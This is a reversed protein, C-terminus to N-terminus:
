RPNDINSEKEGLKAKLERIEKKLEIMKLERGIAMKQFKELDRIKEKFEQEFKKRETLDNFAFFYGVVNGKEDRRAMVSLAVPIEKKEKTLLTTERDFIFGKEQLEKEIEQIEKPRSFIKKLNEGLLEISSFGLLRELSKGLDLINMAPNVYCIPMPLFEWFARIYSELQLLDNLLIDEKEKSNSKTIGM